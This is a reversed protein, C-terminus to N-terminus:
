EMHIIKQSDYSPKKGYVAIGHHLIKQRNERSHWRKDLEEATLSTREFSYPDEFIIKQKDYGIATVWHGNGYDNSYDAKKKGSWAQLLVIVPIKRDIYDRLDEVTMTRSDFKLGFKKLVKLMQPLSTGSRSNTKASKIIVNELKKIGYYALVAQLAKAGCDYEYTQPHNPFELLKM